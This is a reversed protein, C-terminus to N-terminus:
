KRFAVVHTVCCLFLSYPAVLADVTPIAMTRAAEQGGVLPAYGPGALSPRSPAVVPSGVPAGQLGDVVEPPRETASLAELLLEGDM